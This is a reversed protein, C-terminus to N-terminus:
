SSFTHLANEKRCNVCSSIFSIDHKTGQRNKVAPPCENFINNNQKGTVIDHTKLSPDEELRDTIDQVVRSPIKSAGNLPHNHLDMRSLDGSRVLGTLWRRKDDPNIPWVYVFEVPCPGSHELSRDPHNSCHHRERTSTVHQCGEVPCQKVGGCPAIRYNLEEEMGDVNFTVCRPERPKSKGLQIDSFLFHKDSSSYLPLKTIDEAYGLRQTAPCHFVGPYHYHKTECISYWNSRSSLLRRLVPLLHIGKSKRTTKPKIATPDGASTPIAVVAESDTLSPLISEKPAKAYEEGAESLRYTNFVMSSIRSYGRGIQMTRDLLGLLWAQRILTRWTATSYELAAGTGYASDDTM